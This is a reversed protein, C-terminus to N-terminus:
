LIEQVTADNENPKLLSDYISDIFPQFDAFLRAEGGILPSADKAWNEICPVKCIIFIFFLFLFRNGRFSAENLLSGTGLDHIGYSGRKKSGHKEFAKCATRIFRVTATTYPSFNHIQFM